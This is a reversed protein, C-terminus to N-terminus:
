PVGWIRHMQPIVRVDKLFKSAPGILEREIKGLAALNISGDPDTVPQLVFPVAPDLSAVIGVGREIEDRRTDPTVVVKIFVEKPLSFELFERHRDWFERDGTGSPPKLDMAVVDIWALNQKLAAPLTGNTELYTKFGAQKLLPLFEALFDPYFLPEGGTLSVSHHPGKLRELEAVQAFLDELGVDRYAGPRMKDAEDCYGCHMNCRGFRVFIQKKGLHPGEGQISSFVESVEATM